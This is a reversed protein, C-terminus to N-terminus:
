RGLLRRLGSLAKGSWSRQNVVELALDRRVTATWELKYRENNGLFDYERFGADFLRQMIASRLVLGPALEGFRLSFSTKLCYGKGEAVLSLDYAIPEGALRLLSVLVQGSSAFREVLVEYFRTEWPRATLSTGTKAKWSESEITAISHMAGPMEAPDVIFEISYEGAEGLKRAKRKLNSRFNASKQRLFEQWPENIVLYPPANGRTETVSFDPPAFRQRCASAFAEGDALQCLRLVTWGGFHEDLVRAMQETAEAISADSLVGQHLAFTSQIPEVITVALGLRRQRHVRLPLVLRSRGTRGVVIVQVEAHPIGHAEILAEVWPRRLDPAAGVRGALEAWDATDSPTMDPWAIRRSPSLVGEASDLGTGPTARELM